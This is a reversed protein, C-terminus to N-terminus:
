CHVVPKVSRPVPEDTIHLGRRPSPCPMARHAAPLGGDDSCALLVFPLGIFATEACANFNLADGLLALRPM